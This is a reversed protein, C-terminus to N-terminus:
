KKYPGMPLVTRGYMWETTSMGVCNYLRDTEAYDVLFVFGTRAERDVTATWGAVPNKVGSCHLSVVM